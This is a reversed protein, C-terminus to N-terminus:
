GAVAIRVPSRQMEYVRACGPRALVLRCEFAARAVGAVGFLNWPGRRRIGAAASSAVGAVEPGVPMRLGAGACVVRGALEAVAAAGAVDEGIGRQRMHRFGNGAGVVADRVRGEFVSAGCRGGPPRAERTSTAAVNGPAAATVVCRRSSTM